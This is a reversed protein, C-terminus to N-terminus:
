KRTAQSPYIMPCYNANSRWIPSNTVNGEFLARATERYRRNGLVIFVGVILSIVLIQALTKGLTDM